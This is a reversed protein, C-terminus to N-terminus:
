FVVLNDDNWFKSNDSSDRYKEMYYIYNGIDDLEIHRGQSYCM